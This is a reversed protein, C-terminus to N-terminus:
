GKNFETIEVGKRVNSTSQEKKIQQEWTNIKSIVDGVNKLNAMLDKAAKGPDEESAPDAGEFYQRLRRVAGRAAELLRLSETQSLEEYKEIAEKLLATEDKGDLFDKKLIQKRELPEYQAYPSSWDCKHYIYCIYNEADKHDGIKQFIKIHQLFPPISVTGNEKDERFLAM